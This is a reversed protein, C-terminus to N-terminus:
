TMCSLSPVISPEFSAFYAPLLIQHANRQSAYLLLLHILDLESFIYAILLFDVQGGSEFSRKKSDHFKVM